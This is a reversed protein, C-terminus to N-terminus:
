YSVFVTILVLFRQGVLRAWDVQLFLAAEEERQGNQRQRTPGESDFTLSETQLRDSVERLSGSRAAALTWGSWTCSQAFTNM